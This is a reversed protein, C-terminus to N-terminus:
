LSLAAHIKGGRPKGWIWREEKGNIGLWPTTQERSPETSRRSCLFYSNIHMVSKGDLMILTMRFHTSATPSPASVGNPPFIFFSARLSHLLNITKGLSFKSTPPTPTASTRTIIQLQLMMLCNLLWYYIHKKPVIKIVFSPPAPSLCLRCILGGWGDYGVKCLM